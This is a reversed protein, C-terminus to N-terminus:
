LNSDHLTRFHVFSPTVDAAFNQSILNLLGFKTFLNANM